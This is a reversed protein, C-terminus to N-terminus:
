EVTHMADIGKNMDSHLKNLDAEAIKFPVDGDSLRSLYKTADDAISEFFRAIQLREDDEDVEFEEGEALDADDAMVDVIREVIDACAGYVGEYAEVLRTQADIARSQRSEGLTSLESALSTLARDETLNARRSRSEEWPRRKKSKEDEDDDDEDEDEDDDKDEDDYDGMKGNYGGEYLGAEAEHLLSTLENVAETMRENEVTLNAIDEVATNLAYGMANIVGRLGDENLGDDDETFYSNVVEWARSLKDEEAVIEAQAEAEYVERDTPILFSPVMKGNQEAVVTDEEDWDDQNLAPNQANPGVEARNLGGQRVGVNRRKGAAADGADVAFDGEKYYGGEDEPPPGAYDGGKEDAQAYGSGKKNSAAAPEKNGEVLGLDSLDEMLSTTPGTTPLMM